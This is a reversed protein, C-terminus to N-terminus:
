LSDTTALCGPEAYLPVDPHDQPTLSYRKRRSRNKVHNRVFGCAVHFTVDSSPTMPTMLTMTAIYTSPIKMLTEECIM